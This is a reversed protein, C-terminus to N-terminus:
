KGELIRALWHEAVARVEPSADARQLLALRGPYRWGGRALAAATVLRVSPKGNPETRGTLPVRRGLLWAMSAGFDRITRVGDGDRTIERRVHHVYGLTEAAAVLAEAHAQAAQDILSPAADLDALLSDLPVGSERVSM